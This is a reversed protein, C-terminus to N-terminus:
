ASRTTLQETAKTADEEEEKPFLPETRNRFRTIDESDMWDEIHGFVFNMLREFVPGHGNNHAVRKHHKRHGRDSFTELMAHVSEHALMILLSGLNSTDHEHKRNPYVTLVNKNADFHGLVYRSPTPVIELTVLPMREVREGIKRDVERTLLDFYFLEDIFEFYETLIATIKKTSASRLDIQEHKRFREIFRTITVSGPDRAALSSSMVLDVLSRADHPIKSSTNEGATEKGRRSMDDALDELNTIEAM